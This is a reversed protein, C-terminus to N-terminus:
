SLFSQCGHPRRQARTCVSGSGRDHSPM